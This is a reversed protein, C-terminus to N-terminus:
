RKAKPGTTILDKLQLFTSEGIGKVNMLDAPRKFAGNKERYAIIRQAIAPGIRPLAELQQADATNINVTGADAAVAAPMGMTLTLCAVALIAALQRKVCSIHTVIIEQPKRGIPAPAPAQRLSGNFVPVAGVRTTVPGMNCPRYWASLPGAHANLPPHGWKRGVM